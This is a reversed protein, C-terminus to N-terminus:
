VSNELYFIMLRDDASNALLTSFNFPYTKELVFIYKVAWNYAKAERKLPFGNLFFLIQEGLVHLRPDEYPFASIRLPAM